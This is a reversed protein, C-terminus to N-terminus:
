DEGRREDEAREVVAPQFHFRLVPEGVELDALQSSVVLPGDGLSSEALM